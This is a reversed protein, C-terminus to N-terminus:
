REEGPAAPPPTLPRRVPRDRDGGLWFVVADEEIRGVVGDLLPDGPSVVFGEGSLSELIAWASLGTGKEAGEPFRSRVVGRIRAERVLVGGLGPPRLVGEADVAGRFPDRGREQEGASTMGLGPGRGEGGNAPPVAGTLLVLLASKWPKPRMV